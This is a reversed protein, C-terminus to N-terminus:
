DPKIISSFENEIQTIYRMANNLSDLIQNELNEKLKARTEQNAALFLTRAILQSAVVSSVHVIAGGKLSAEQCVGDILRLCGDLAKNAAADIKAIEAQTDAQTPNTDATFSM